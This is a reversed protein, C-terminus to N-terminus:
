ESAPLVVVYRNPEVGESETTLGLEAVADHVVKREFASMAALRAPEGSDRVEAVARQAVEQLRAKYQARHGAIDITLRSREGYQNTVALRTLDQLASLVEGDAGVLHRLEGETSELISVLARDGEVSIDLDGDLDLIDLLGELYDAAIEGQEELSSLRDASETGEADEITGEIEEDSM